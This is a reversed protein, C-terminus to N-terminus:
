RGGAQDDAQGGASLRHVECTCTMEGGLVEMFRQKVGWGRLHRRAPSEDAPITLIVTGHGCRSITGGTDAGKAVQFRNPDGDEELSFGDGRLSRLLKQWAREDIAEWEYIM